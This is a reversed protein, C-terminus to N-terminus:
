LLVDWLQLRATACGPPGGVRQKLRLTTRLGAARSAKLVVCRARLVVAALLRERCAMLSTRGGCWVSRAWRASRVV